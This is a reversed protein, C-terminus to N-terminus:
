RNASSTYGKFNWELEDSLGKMLIVNVADDDVYIVKLKEMLIREEKLLSGRLPQNDITPM